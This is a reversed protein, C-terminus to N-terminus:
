PFLGGLRPGIWRIRGQEVLMSTEPGFKGGALDLVRVHSVLLPAAISRAMTVRAPIETTQGGEIAKRWIKAGESYVIASSDATFSFSRRGDISFRRFDADKLLRSEFKAIWIEHNRRF